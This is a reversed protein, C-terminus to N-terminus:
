FTTGALAGSTTAPGATLPIFAVPAVSVILALTFAVPAVAVVVATLTFVVTGAAAASVTTAFTVEAGAPADAM